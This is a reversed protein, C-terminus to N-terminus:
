TTMGAFAPMWYDGVGSISDLLRLTSSRGGERVIVATPVTVALPAEAALVAV